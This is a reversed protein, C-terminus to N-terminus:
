QLHGVAHEKGDAMQNSPNLQLQESGAAAWRVLATTARAMTLLKGLQRQPLDATFELDM